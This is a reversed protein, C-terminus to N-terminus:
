RPTVTVNVRLQSGPGPNYPLRTMFRQGDYEYTVMYSTRTESTSTQECRQIPVSRTYAADGSNRSSLRDGAIAGLGAGAAAAAVKGNGEGMLSGLLGGVIGGLIGGGLNREPPPSQYTQQQYETWCRQSPQSVTENTPVVSVVTAVAEFAHAPTGALLAIVVLPLKNM